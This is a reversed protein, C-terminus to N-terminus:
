RFLSAREKVKREVEMADGHRAMSRRERNEAERSNDEETRYAGKQWAAGSGVVSAGQCAFLGASLWSV